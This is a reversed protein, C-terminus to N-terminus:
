TAPQAIRWINGVGESDLLGLINISGLLSYMAIAGFTQFWVDFPVADCGLLVL